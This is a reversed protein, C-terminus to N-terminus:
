ASRRRASARRPRPSRYRGIIVPVDRITMRTSLGDPSRGARSTGRHANGVLPPRWQGIAQRPFRGSGPQGILFHGIEQGDEVHGQLQAGGGLQRRQQLHDLSRGEGHQMALPGAHQQVIRRGVFQQASPSVAGRQDPERRTFAHGARHEPAPHQRVHDISPGIWPEIALRIERRPEPRPVDQGARKSAPVAGHDAHKFREVLLASRKVGPVLNERRAEGRLRPHGNLPLEQQLAERSRPLVLAFHVDGALHLLPKQRTVRGPNAAEIDRAPVLRGVFGAAVDEVELWNTLPPQGETDGVGAAM